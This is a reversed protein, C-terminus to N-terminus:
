KVPMALFPGVEVLKFQLDCFFALLEFNQITSDSFPFYTPKRMIYSLKHQLNTVKGYGENELHNQSNKVIHNLMKNVLYLIVHIFLSNEFITLVQFKALSNILFNNNICFQGTLIEGLM